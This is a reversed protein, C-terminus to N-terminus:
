RTNRTARAQKIKWTFVRILNRLELCFSRLVKIPTIHLKYIVVHLDLMKIINHQELGFCPIDKWTHLDVETGKLTNEAKRRWLNEINKTLKIELYKVKKNSNYIPNERGNYIRTTQTYSPQQNEELWLLVKQWTRKPHKRKSGLWWETLFGSPMHLHLGLELLDQGILELRWVGCSVDPPVSSSDVSDRPQPNM